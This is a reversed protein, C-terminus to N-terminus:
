EHIQSVSLKSQKKQTKYGANVLYVGGMTVLFAVCTLWTIKEGLVFFGLIIAVLPNIYAYISVLGAPLKSMAYLYSAFALISGFLILYLLAFMSRPNMQPLSSWDENLASLIFLGSGGVFMQVGANFFSDSKSKHIQTYLGGMCWSFISVLVVVIGTLSAPDAILDLNDKFMIGVGCLALLMGGVIQPNVKEDKRAVLNLTITFIPIMSCLLAALGSPIYKVAWGVIGTGTTIMCLGPIIQLKLDNWNWKMSPRTIALFALLIVGASVNRIAMFILAPFGAVGIRAALYTTGWFFCVLGLAVYAKLNAKM